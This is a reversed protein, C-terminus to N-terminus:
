IKIQKAKLNRTTKQRKKKIPFMDISEDDSEDVASPLVARFSSSLSSSSSSSSSSLHDAYEYDDQPLPHHISFDHLYVNGDNSEINHREDNDINNVPDENNQLEDEIADFDSEGDFAM